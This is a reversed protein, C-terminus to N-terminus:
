FVMVFCNGLLKYSVSLDYVFVASIQGSSRGIGEFTASTSLCGVENLGKSPLFFFNNWSRSKNKRTYPVLNLAKCRSPLQELWQAM